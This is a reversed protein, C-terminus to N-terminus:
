CRYGHRSNMHGDTHMWVQLYLGRCLRSGTRRGVVSSGLGFATVLLGLVLNMWGERLDSLVPRRATPETQWCVVM